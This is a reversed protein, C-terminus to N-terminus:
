VQGPLRGDIGATVASTGKGNALASSSERPRKSMWWIAGMVACICVAVGSVAATIVAFRAPDGGEGEPEDATDKDEAEPGFAVAPQKVTKPISEFSASGILVQLSAPAGTVNQASLEALVGRAISAAATGDRSLATLRVEVGALQEERSVAIATEAILAEVAPGADGESLLRGGPAAEAALIRLVHVAQSFLLGLSSSVGAAVADLFVPSLDAPSGFITVNARVEFKGRPQAAPREWLVPTAAASIPGPLVVVEESPRARFWAQTVAGRDQLKRAAQADVELRRSSGCEGCPEALCREATCWLFVDTSGAFKFNRVSLRVVHSKDEAHTRLDLLGAPCGADLYQVAYVDDIANTPSAICSALGIIDAASSSAIEQHLRRSSTPFLAGPGLPTAFANTPFVRLTAQFDASGVIERQEQVPVIRIRGSAAVATLPSECICLVVAPAPVMSVNFIVAGYELPRYLMTVVDTVLGSADNTTRTVNCDSVSFDFFSRGESSQMACATVNESGFIVYTGVSHPPAPCWM